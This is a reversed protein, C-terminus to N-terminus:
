VKRVEGCKKALTGLKNQTHFVRTGNKASWTCLNGIQNYSSGGIYAERTVPKKNPFFASNM